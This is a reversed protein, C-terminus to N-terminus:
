REETSLCGAAETPTDYTAKRQKPEFKRLVHTRYDTQLMQPFDITALKVDQHTPFTPCGRTTM